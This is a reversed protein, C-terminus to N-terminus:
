LRPMLCWLAGDAGARAAGVSLVAACWQFHYQTCPDVVAMRPNEAETSIHDPRRPSLPCVLAVAFRTQSRIGEWLWCDTKLSGCLTGVTVDRGHRPWGDDRFCAYTAHFVLRSSFFSRTLPWLCLYMCTYIGPIQGKRVCLGCILCPNVTFTNDKVLMNHLNWAGAAPSIKWGKDCVDEHPRSAFQSDSQLGATTGYRTSKDVLTKQPFCQVKGCTGAAAWKM